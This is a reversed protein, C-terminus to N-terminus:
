NFGAKKKFLALGNKIRYWISFKILGLVVLGWFILAGLCGVILGQVFPAITIVIEQM